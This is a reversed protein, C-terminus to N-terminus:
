VGPHDKQLRQGCWHRPQQNQLRPGWGVSGQRGRGGGLGEPEEQVEEWWDTRVIM